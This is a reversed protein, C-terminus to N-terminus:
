QNPNRPGTLLFVLTTALCLFAAGSLGAVNYGHVAARAPLDAAAAHSHVYATTATAAISGLLATGLSAGIQQSTMVIAGAVGTDPGAGLTAINNAPLLVCGVGLGLLVVVPLAGTVYGGDARLLGLLALGAACALLGPCLLLRLPARMLFGRIVRVGLMIAATFPLFALGAKIPSYGLIDQLYFTLFFFGAFMGIAMCLVALYAGARRRERVVRLPLLAAGTRSEVLVFLALLIVGAALVGLTIRTAWGQSEARTFGLVLAMLGTTALVAGVIDVETGLRRPTARVTASVGAAAGVAIPLSVLMCWRWDLYNTLVGGLILGIGSSGAMVTGYIGFAKGRESPETFTTGLLALASPTFLAGFIGQLARAVLLMTPNVAAGGLASAAAFGALGILLCRKRGILDSLRGGLLLFGGYALAFLTIVWQRQATSLHLSHQASPLAINMITVDAAIMLQGAAIAALARWRLPDATTPAPEASPHAAIRM